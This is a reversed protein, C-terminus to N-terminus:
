TLTILREEIDTLLQLFARLAYEEGGYNSPDDNANLNDTNGTFHLLDEQLGFDPLDRFASWLNIYPVQPFNDHLNKLILYAPDTVQASALTPSGHHPAIVAIPLINQELLYDYIESIYEVFEDPSSHLDIDFWVFAFGPPSEQQGIEAALPSGYEGRDYEYARVFNEDTLDPAPNALAQAPTMMNFQSLSERDTLGPLFSSYGARVGQWFTNEFLEDPVTTLFGYRNTGETAHAVRCDGLRIFRHMDHRASVAQRMVSDAAAPLYRDSIPHELLWLIAEQFKATDTSWNLQMIEECDLDDSNRALIEHLFAQATGNLFKIQLFPPLTHWSELSPFGEQASVTMEPAGWIFKPVAAVAAVIGLRKLFDRRTEAM